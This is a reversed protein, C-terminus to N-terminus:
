EGDTGDGRRRLYREFEAAIEDGDAQGMVEHLDDQTDGREELAQVYEAIDEDEDTMATMNQQWEVARRPLEGLPIEMDAIRELHELLAVMVKPNPPQSLYHPVAAWLGLAPIGAGTCADQLVGTIGTPGEYDSREMRYYEAAEASHASGTVPVPRTHPTDALLAGLTIVMQAGTQGLIELLETCFARWRFNPEAGQILILEKSGGPPRCRTLRTAPWTIRRAVGDVLRITPRNVQYDYYGESGIEALQTSDWTLALHELVGTAAEAADNWGEFAAVVVPGDSRGSFDGDRDATSM